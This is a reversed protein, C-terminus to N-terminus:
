ALCPSLSVTVFFSSDQVCRYKRPMAAMNEQINGMPIM